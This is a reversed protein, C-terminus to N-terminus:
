KMEIKPNFFKGAIKGKTYYWIRKLKKGESFRLVGLVNLIYNYRFNFHDRMPIHKRLIYGENRYQMYLRNIKNEDCYIVSSGRNTPSKHTMISDVDIYSPRIKNLRLSYENDDFYIFFDKIPLGAKKVVKMNAFFSVFSATKVPVLGHRIKDYNVDWTEDLTQKNLQCIKGDTWKVISSLFSFNDKLLAAKNILSKLAGKDEAISDDDMLWVYDVKNKLAERVGYNFGGAGGSNKGTNFYFVKKSDVLKSIFDKTGDTSANDIIYIQQNKYSQKLLAEICEKLMEKRNYTVVITAVTKKNM